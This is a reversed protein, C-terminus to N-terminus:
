TVRTGNQFSVRVHEYECASGFFLKDQRGNAGRDL